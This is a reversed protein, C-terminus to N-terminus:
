LILRWLKLFKLGFIGGGEFFTCACKAWVAAPSLEAPGGIRWVSDASPGCVPIVLLFKLSDHFCFIFITGFVSIASEDLSSEETADFGLFFIELGFAADGRFFSGLVAPQM